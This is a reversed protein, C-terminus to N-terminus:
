EASIPRKDAWPLIQELARAVRLVTLEEGPRGIVQLGVPMGDVFGAPVSAACCGALNARMTYKVYQRIAEGPGAERPAYPYSFDDPILPAIQDITPTLLVDYHAHVGRIQDVVRRRRQEAEESAPVTEAGSVSGPRSNPALRQEWGPEALIARTEPLDFPRLGGYHPMDPFPSAPTAGMNDVLVLGPEDVAAGAQALAFAARRACAVVRPDNYPSVEHEAAWAVRLGAIGGDITEAFRQGPNMTDLFLAADRVDRTLPGVASIAGGIVCGDLPVRRPSPYLGFVGNLAAPLRISGGDDSGISIPVLGAAVAAGSGGSSGGCTRRPDWPNRCEEAVLNGSRGWMSFEPLNAKGVLVGGAEALRAVVAADSAPRYTEFLKSAMTTRVGRTFINDKASFPLGLLPGRRDAPPLADIEAARTRALDAAVTIFAHLRPELAEIRALVNGIVEGASLEGSRVLDAIRHGPMWALRADFAM